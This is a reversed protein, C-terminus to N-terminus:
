SIFLNDYRDSLNLPGRDLPLTWSWSNKESACIFKGSLAGSASFLPGFICYFYLIKPPTLVVFFELDWWIWRISIRNNLLILKYVTPINLISSCPLLMEILLSFFFLHFCAFLTKIWPKNLGTNRIIMTWRIMKLWIVSSMVSSIM